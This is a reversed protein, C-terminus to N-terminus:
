CGVVLPECRTKWGQRRSEDVLEQYKARKKEHAEDM